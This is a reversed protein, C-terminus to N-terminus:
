GWSTPIAQWIDVKGHVRSTIKLQRWLNICSYLTLYDFKSSPTTNTICFWLLRIDNSAITPIIDISYINIQISISQRECFNGRSSWHLPLHLTQLNYQFNTTSTLLFFAASSTQPRVLPGGLCLSDHHHFSSAAFTIYIVLPFQEFIHFFDSVASSLAKYQM